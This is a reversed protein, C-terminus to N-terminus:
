LCIGTFYPKIIMYGNNESPPMNAKSLCYDINSYSYIGIQCIGGKLYFSNAPAMNYVNSTYTSAIAGCEVHGTVAYPVTAISTFNSAFDSFLFFDDM